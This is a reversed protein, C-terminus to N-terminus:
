IAREREIVEHILEHGADTLAILHSRRHAPNPTTEVLGRTLLDNVISQIHQRSVHRARAIQPVSAAGHRTLHELVARGPPDIDAHLHDALDALFHYSIRIENVLAEFEQQM